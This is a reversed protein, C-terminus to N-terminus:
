EVMPQDLNPIQSSKEANKRLKDLLNQQKELTESAKAQELVDQGHAYGALDVMNDRKGHGTMHRVEKLFRQFAPVDEAQLLDEVGYKTKIYLNWFAAIAPFSNEVLGYEGDKIGLREQAQQLISKM